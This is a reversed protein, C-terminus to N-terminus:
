TKRGYIVSSSGVKARQVEFKQILEKVTGSAIDVKIKECGSQVDEESLLAFTSIGDRYKKDLYREPVDHDVSVDQYSIEIGVNSFGTTELFSAIEKSDPIRALDKKLGEPFYDFYWCARMQEHSCSDIAIHGGKRLVRHAEKLFIEKNKVHHLVQIAFVGNFTESDFPLDSVDGCIFEIEPFKAKAQEIMGKSLDIGFVSKAKQQMAATYNGTGCGLDLLASNKDVHLLRVLKAVMEIKAARSVDYVRSVADYDLHSKDKM